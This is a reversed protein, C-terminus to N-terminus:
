SKLLSNEGRNKTIQDNDYASEGKLILMEKKSEPKLKDFNQWLLNLILKAERKFLNFLTKNDNEDKEIQKKKANLRRIETNLDKIQETKKVIVDDRLVEEKAKTEAKLQDVSKSTKDGGQLDLDTWGKEHMMKEITSHYMVYAKRPVVKDFHLTNHGTEENRYIPTLILHMHPATEDMHVWASAVDSPKLGFFLLNCEMIDQFFRQLEAPNEQCKKFYARPLTTICSFGLVANSKITRDVQSEIYKIQEARHRNNPSVNFNLYSKTADIYSRGHYEGEKNYTRDVHQFAYENSKKVKAINM